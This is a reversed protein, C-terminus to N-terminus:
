ALTVLDVENLTSKTGKAHSSANIYFTLILLYTNLKGVFRKLDKFANLQQGVKFNM